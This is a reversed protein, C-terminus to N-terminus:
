FIIFKNDKIGLNACKSTLNDYFNTLNSMDTSIKIYAEEDQENVYFILTIYQQYNDYNNIKNIKNIFLKLTEVEPIDYLHIFDINKIDIDFINNISEVNNIILKDVSYIIHNYEKFLIINFKIKDIKDNMENMEIKYNLQPGEYALYLKCVKYDNILDIDEQTIGVSSLIIIGKDKNKINMNKYSEISDIIVIGKYYNIENDFNGYFENPLPKYLCKNVEYNDDTFIKLGNKNIHETNLIASLVNYKSISLPHLILLKNDEIFELFEM